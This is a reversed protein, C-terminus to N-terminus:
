KELETIRKGHEGLLVDHTQSRSLLLATGHIIENMMEANRNVNKTLVALQESIQAIQESNRAIQESIQAIQQDHKEANRTLHELREDINM